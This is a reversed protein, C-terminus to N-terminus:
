INNNVDNITYTELTQIPSHLHKEIFKEPKDYTTVISLQNEKSIVAVFIQAECLLALEMAKKFLGKKRKVFTVLRNRENQIKQIKIKNRGM